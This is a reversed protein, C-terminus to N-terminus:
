DLLPVDLTHVQTVPKEFLHKNYINLVKESYGLDIRMSANDDCIKNFDDFFKLGQKSPPVTNCLEELHFEGAYKDYLEIYQKLFEEAINFIKSGDRTASKENIAANYLKEYTESFAQYATSEKKIARIQVIGKKNASGIEYRDYLGQKELEKIVIQVKSRLVPSKSQIVSELDSM